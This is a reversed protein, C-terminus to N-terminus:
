HAPAPLIEGDKHLLRKCLPSFASILGDESSPPRCVCGHTQGPETLLGSCESSIVGVRIM